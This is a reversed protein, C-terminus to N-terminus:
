TLGHLSHFVMPDEPDGGYFLATTQLCMQWRRDKSFLATRCIVARKNKRARM